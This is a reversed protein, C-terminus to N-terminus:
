RVTLAFGTCCHLLMIDSCVSSPTKTSTCYAGLLAYTTLEHVRYEFGICNIYGIPDMSEPLDPLASGCEYGAAGCAPQWLTYMTGAGSGTSSEASVGAAACHRKFAANIGAFCEEPSGDVEDQLSDM